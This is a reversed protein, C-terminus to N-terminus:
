HVLEPPRFLFEIDDPLRQAWYLSSHNAGPQVVFSIEPRKFYAQKLHSVLAENMKVTGLDTEKEDLGL